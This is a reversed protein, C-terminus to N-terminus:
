SRDMMSGLRFVGKREVDYVNMDKIMELRTSGRAFTLRGNHDRSERFKSEVYGESVSRVPINGIKDKRVFHANNGNSNCGVFAYGKTEALMCLAKLSAGWYLNSFHANTRYFTPDYPITVAQEKGFVSNYEVTVIVPDVVRIAEWIWYDNGDIDINLLGIEGTFGAQEFLTNINDRNVFAAVAQLDHRWYLDSQKLLSMNERDGDMILGSWNNNMLLFRTNAESYNSVGFEIFTQTAPHTHHILYQLIGDDGFQSFVKFEADQINEYVGRGELQKSLFRGLLLRTSKGEEKILRPIEQKVHKIGPLRNILSEIRM